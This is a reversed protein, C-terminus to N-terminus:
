HFYYFSSSNFYYYSVLLNSIFYYEDGVRSDSIKEKFEFVPIERSLAIASTTPTSELLSNDPESNSVRSGHAKYQYKHMIKVLLTIISEGIIKTKKAGKSAATPEINKNNTQISSDMSINQTM